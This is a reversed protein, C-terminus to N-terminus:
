ARWACARIGRMHRLIRAERCVSTKSASRLLSADRSPALDHEIQHAHGFAEVQCGQPAIGIAGALSIAWSIDPALIASLVRTARVAHSSPRMDM